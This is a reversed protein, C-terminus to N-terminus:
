IHEIDRPIKKFTINWKQLDIDSLACSDAYIIYAQNKVNVTALFSYDLITAKDKEYYFYYATDNHSGIYYKEQENEAYELGNTETYWIYKRIEATAIDNNITGDQLFLPSGLEYYSFNGGTGDVANKGEGYGDIVRKVREATITDAYDGMEVLIFKRNGGDKKNMNLVAHATTGSGAFSDLIVSDKKTAIHVIRELLRVPKPTDFATINGLIAKMEKKAEDTHGVEDFPWWSWPVLGKSENLFQKRRPVGNGDSGFTVRGEALAREYESQVVKWCNGEPPLHVKGNPAVIEYMQNPRYGQALLSVSQWLGRPDNDPNSYAKLQKETLPLYNRTEKFVDPNTAYILIYEHSDGIAGRNERSYRKQWAISIVFNSINFIENCMLKLNAFENEDISMFIVGQTPHLLKKLLVLRPYMMCLWKDHRSLDEGEKGVVEGLWKKIKPDNVNDNYIWGENGTNYPPDIYICKIKGEYQPLLSKLAELNDGHIIMNESHIDDKHEGDEDYSYKRELVKYPVDNHHNIVKDKGIWDLTPM